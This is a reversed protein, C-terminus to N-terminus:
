PAPKVDEKLEAKPRRVRMNLIRALEVLPEKHDDVRLDVMRDGFRNSGRWERVVLIAASQKGRKDGGAKEAAEMAAMIRWALPGKSAEFAKAMDAVVAEGALLNGQCAYHTGTRHGAYKGCNKGTFAAANGKADIVGLQRSASGKDAETLTKVVEEASKGGALLELGKPGWSVNTTAQTAVAGVNARASPVVAGVALVRSAVGVGWQKTEPDYAVISFTHVPEALEDSKPGPLAGAPLLGGVVPVGLLAAFLLCARRM